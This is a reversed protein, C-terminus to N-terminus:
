TLLGLAGCAATATFLSTSPFRLPNIGAKLAVAGSLGAVSATLLTAFAALEASGRAASWAFAGAIALITVTAIHWCYYNLWKSAKPLGTDALLPRAVFVGGVFTHVAFTLVALAAASWLLPAQM